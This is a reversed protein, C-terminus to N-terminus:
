GFPQFNGSLYLLDWHTRIEFPFAHCLFAFVNVIAQLASHVSVSFRTAFVVFLSHSLSVTTPVLSCQGSKNLVMQRQTEVKGDSNCGYFTM